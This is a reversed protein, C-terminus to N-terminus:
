EMRGFAHINLNQYLLSLIKAMTVVGIKHIVNNFENQVIIMDNIVFDGIGKNITSILMNLRTIIIERLPHTEDKFVSLLREIEAHIHIKTGFEICSLARSDQCM